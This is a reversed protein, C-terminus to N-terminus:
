ATRQWALGPGPAQRGFEHEALSRAMKISACLDALRPTVWSMLNVAGRINVYFCVSRNTPEVGTRLLCILRSNELFPPRLTFNMHVPRATAKSTAVASAGYAGVIKPMRPRYSPYRLCPM